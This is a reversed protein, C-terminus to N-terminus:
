SHGHRDARAHPSAAGLVPAARGSGHSRAPPSLVSVRDVALDRTGGESMPLVMFPASAAIRTATTRSNRTEITRAIASVANVRMLRMRASESSSSPRLPACAARASARAVRASASRGAGARGRRGASWRTAAPRRQELPREPAGAQEDAQHDLDEHVEHDALDRRLRVRDLVRVAGRQAHGAEEPGDRVERRQPEERAAQDSERVHQERALAQLLSREDGLLVEARHRVDRGVLVLDLALLPPEDVGDELEAVRHHALDHPRPRVHHRDVGVLRDFGAISVAISPPKERM